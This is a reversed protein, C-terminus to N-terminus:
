LYTNASKQSFGKFLSSSFSFIDGKREEGGIRVLRAFFLNKQCFTINELFLAINVFPISFFGFVFMVNTM